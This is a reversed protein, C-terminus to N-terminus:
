YGCGGGGLRNATIRVALLRNYDTKKFIPKQAKKKYIYNPGENVM